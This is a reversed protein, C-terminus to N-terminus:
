PRRLLLPFAWGSTVLGAPILGLAILVLDVKGTSSVVDLGLLFLLVASIAWCIQGVSM